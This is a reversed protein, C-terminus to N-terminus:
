NSATWHTSKNMLNNGELTEKLLSYYCDLSDKTVANSLCSSLPDSSCLSLESHRKMFGQWWGEGKFGNINRYPNKKEVIRKVIRIVDQMTKGHGMKCSSLQKGRRSKPM